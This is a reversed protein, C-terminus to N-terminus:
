QEARAAERTSYYLSADIRVARNYEPKGSSDLSHARTVDIKYSTIGGLTKCRHIVMGPTIPVGDATVEVTARLRKVEDILEQMEKGVMCGQYDSIIQYKELDLM